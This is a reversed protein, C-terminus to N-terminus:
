RSSKIFGAAIAEAPTNFCQEAKTRDYFAGGKVHFLKKGTSSINGKVVCNASPTTSTSIGAVQGTEGVEAAVAPKKPTITTYNSQTKYADRAVSREFRGAGFGVFFIVVFGAAIMVRDKNEKEAFWNKIEEYTPM